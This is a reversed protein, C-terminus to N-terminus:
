SGLREGDAEGPQEEDAALTRRVYEARQLDSEGENLRRGASEELHAPQSNVMIKNLTYVSPGSLLKMSVGLRVGSLLNMVEEFTLSRAYRLLGYARWIKDEIVAPAEKM